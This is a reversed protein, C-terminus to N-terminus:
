VAECALSPVMSPRVILRLPPSEHPSPRLVPEPRVTPTGLYLCANKRFPLAVDDIALLLHTM